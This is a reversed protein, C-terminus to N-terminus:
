ETAAVAHEEVVEQVKNKFAAIDEVLQTHEDVLNAHDEVIEEVKVNLDAQETIEAQIESELEAETEIEDSVPAEVKAVVPAAEAIQAVAPTGESDLIEKVHDLIKDALQLDCNCTKKLCPTENIQTDCVYGALVKSQLHAANNFDFTDAEYSLISTKAFFNNQNNLGPARRYNVRNCSIENRKTEIRCLRWMKCYKEIPKDQLYTWDDNEVPYSFDDLTQCWRGSMFRSFIYNADLGNDNFVGSLMHKPNNFKVVQNAAVLPALGYYFKM